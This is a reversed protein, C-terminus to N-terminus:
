PQAPVEAAPPLVMSARLDTLPKDPVRIFGRTPRDLDFTVFLLLTVLAVALLVISVARGLVAIYAALMGLAVASGIVELALVADPV